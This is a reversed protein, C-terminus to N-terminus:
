GFGGRWPIGCAADICSFLKCGSGYVRRGLLARLAAAVLCVDDCLRESIGSHQQTHQSSHPQKTSSWRRNADAPLDCPWRRPPLPLPYTMNLNHLTNSREDPNPTGLIQTNGGTCKGRQLSCVALRHLLPIQNLQSAFETLQCDANMSVTEDYQLGSSRQTVEYVRM